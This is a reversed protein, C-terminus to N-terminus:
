PYREYHAIASKTVHSLAAWTFQMTPDYTTQWTVELQVPTGDSFHATTPPPIENWHLPEQGSLSAPELTLDLALKGATITATGALTRWSGAIDDPSNEIEVGVTGRQGLTVLRRLVDPAIHATLLRTSSLVRTPKSAMSLWADAATVLPAPATDPNSGHGAYYDTTVRHQSTSQQRTVNRRYTTRNTETSDYWGISVENLLTARNIQRATDVIEAADITVTNPGAGFTEEGPGITASVRGVSNTKDFLTFWTLQSVGPNGRFVLGDASEHVLQAGIPSIEQCLTLVDVNDIDRPRVYDIGVPWRAWIGGLIYPNILPFPSADQIARLRTPPVGFVYQDPLPPTNIKTAAARALIDGATIQWSWTTIPHRTDPHHVVRRTITLDDIWGRWFTLADGDIILTVEVLSEYDLAPHDPSQHILDLSLKGPTPHDRSSPQQWTGTMTNVASPIDGMFAADADTTNVTLVDGDPGTITLEVGVDALQNRM